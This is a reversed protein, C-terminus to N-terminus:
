KMSKKSTASKHRPQSRPRLLGIEAATLPRSKGIVLDGIELPGIATRVLKLVKNDVAELM